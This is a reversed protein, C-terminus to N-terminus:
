FAGFIMIQALLPLLDYYSKKSVLLWAILWHLARTFMEESFRQNQNGSAVQNGFGAERRTQVVKSRGWWIKQM